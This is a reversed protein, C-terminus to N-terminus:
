LNVQKPIKPNSNELDIIECEKDVDFKDWSKYDYSNIRKQKKLETKRSGLIFIAQM